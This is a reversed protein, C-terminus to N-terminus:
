AVVAERAYATVTALTRRREVAWALRPALEDRVREWLANWSMSNMSYGHHKRSWEAARANTVNWIQTYADGTAAAEASRTWREARRGVRRM